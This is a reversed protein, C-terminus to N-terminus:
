DKSIQLSLASCVHNALSLLIILPTLFFIRLMTIPLVRLLINLLKPPSVLTDNPVYDPLAGAISALHADAASGSSSEAAPCFILSTDYISYFSASAISKLLADATPEFM